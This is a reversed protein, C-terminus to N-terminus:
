RGKYETISVTGYFPTLELKEEGDLTHIDGIREKDHGGTNAIFAFMDDEGLDLFINGNNDIFLKHQEDKDETYNEVITAKITM